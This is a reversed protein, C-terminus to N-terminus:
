FPGTGERRHASIGKVIGGRRSQDGQRQIRRRYKFIRIRYMPGFIFNESAREGCQPPKEAFKTALSKLSRFLIPHLFRFLLPLLRCLQEPSRLYKKCPKMFSSCKCCALRFGGAGITLPDYVLLPYAYLPSFELGIEGGCDAHSINSNM